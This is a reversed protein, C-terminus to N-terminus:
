LRSNNNIIELTFPQYELRNYDEVRGRPHSIFHIGDIIDNYNSHVHGFIWHTIKSYKDKTINELNTNLLENFNTNESGDPLLEKCFRRHPITHTIIVINDIDIDSQYKNLQELLYYYDLLSKMHVNSHFLQIDNKNFDIWDKFYDKSHNYLGKNYNWWGSCGIFATNNIIYSKENLFQLKDNNLNKFRYIMEKRPILRPYDNIHEHNGDIFLIKKYYKSIEQIYQISLNYNDSIDGAIILIKDKNYNWQIPKNIRKGCPYKIPLNTNWMDIHLDSVIDILTM